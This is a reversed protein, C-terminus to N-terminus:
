DNKREQILNFFFCIRNLCGYMVLHAVTVVEAARQSREAVNVAVGGAVNHNPRPAVVVASVKGASCVHEAKIRIARCFGRGFDAGKRRRSGVPRQKWQFWVVTKRPGERGNPVNVAVSHVVNGNPRVLVVVAADVCSRHIHNAQVRVAGHSGKLFDRVQL